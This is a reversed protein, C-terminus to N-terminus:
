TKSIQIPIGGQILIDTRTKFGIVRVKKLLDSKSKGHLPFHCGVGTNKGPSNRPWHLRAPELGHRQLSDSVVSCSVCMRKGTKFLGSSINYKIWSRQSIWLSWWKFFNIEKSVQSCWTKTATHPIKVTTHLVKLQLMHLRTAQSPISGPGGANPTHLRLRQIVLSTGMM